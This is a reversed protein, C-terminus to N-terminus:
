DPVALHVNEPTVLSSLDLAAQYHESTYGFIGSHSVYGNQPWYLFRIDPATSSRNKDLSNGVNLVAFRGNKRLTYGNDLYEQRIRSICEGKNNSEYFELWNVSLHSHGAEMEFASVGPMGDEVTSPKCYRSVHHEPDLEDGHDM